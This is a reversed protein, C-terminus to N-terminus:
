ERFLQGFSAVRAKNAGFFFLAIPSSFNVVPISCSCGVASWIVVDPATLYNLLRDQQHEQNGSVTINLIVGTKDYSERFTVDGINDKVFEQVVTIDLLMGESFLRKLKRMM